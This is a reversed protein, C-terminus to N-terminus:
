AAIVVGSPTFDNYLIHTAPDGMFVKIFYEIRKKRCLRAACAESKRNHFPDNFIVSADNINFALGASSRFKTDSEGHQFLSDRQQGPAAADRVLM